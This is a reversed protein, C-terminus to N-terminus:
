KKEAAVVVISIFSAESRISYTSRVNINEAILIGHAGKQPMDRCRRCQDPIVGINSLIDNEKNSFVPEFGEERQSIM